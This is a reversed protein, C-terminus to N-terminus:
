RQIRRIGDGQTIEQLRADDSVVRGFVTYTGDLHTQPALVIFFQSGGTDPGSLAMGVVGRRDYRRPNIEDRIALGPGGWGDGRPDGDQVVFGPVVRHWAGGDFYRRDLLRLFNDVTLPADGAFLEMVFSGRDLEVTVTPLGGGSLAPLLLRRAVDRYDAIGRQTRVPTSPGWRQSAAPLEDEAVRLILYDEPTPVVDLFGASVAALGTPSAAAIASLARLTALRADDLADAEARRWADTLRPVDAPDAAAALQDAAVSRIVPDDHALGRRAASLLVTDRDALVDGLAALAAGAVRPDPDDLLPLVLPVAFRVGRRGVAQAAAHRERWDRRAAWDRVVSDFEVGATRALALISARRIAWRQGSLLDLLRPTATPSRLAGLTSVAEVRVNLDRDNLRDLAADVLATDFYTGLTRLAQIRVQPDADNALPRVAGLATEVDLRASDSFPRVLARVATARVLPERDALGRLLAPAADATRLRGLTYYARWRTELTSAEAFRAIRDLPADGGLRWSELLVADVIPDAGQQLQGVARDLVGAFLTAVSPGGIKALATVAQVHRAGPTTGQVSTVLDGLAAVAAQDRLLGLAFAAASQVLSDPDRLLELSLEVGAPDGIRGIALAVTRRVM